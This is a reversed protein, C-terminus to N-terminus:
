NGELTEVAKRIRAMVRSRSIYVAGVSMRLTEATRKIPKGEVSTQWFAQWTRDRFEDRVQQAAWRFAQRKYEQDFLASEEGAPAPQADLLRKMDTNGTAQPHRRQKALLNIMLNRAIRFLWGRFSGLAPDPDWRDIAGAVAVFVDQTLESADADQFGKRRALRYVLPQYIDMFERWAREDQPDRIRVLLSPRTNPMDDM